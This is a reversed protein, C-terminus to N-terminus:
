SALRPPHRIFTEIPAIRIATTAAAPFRAAIRQILSLFPPSYAKSVNKERGIAVDSAKAANTTAPSKHRLPSARGNWTPKRTRPPIAAAHNAAQTAKPVAITKISDANM